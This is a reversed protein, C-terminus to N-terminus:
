KSVESKENSKSAEKAEKVEKEVQLKHMKLDKIEGYTYWTVLGLPRVPEQEWYITFKHRNAEVEIIKEGDVWIRIFEDTVRLRVKYWQGNKFDIVQTTHNEAANFSDLNSLGVLQGGWGGLILTCFEEKIPFTLGCFFDSGKVRRAAFSVEYNTKPIKSKISIGTAPKGEELHITGDRVEVKGHQDFDFTDVIRWNKLSKKDFIKVDEGLDNPKTDDPTKGNSESKSKSDAKSPESQSAAQASEQGFARSTACVALVSCVFVVRLAITSM